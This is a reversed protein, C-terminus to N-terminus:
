IRTNARMLLEHPLWARVVKWHSDQLELRIRIAGMGPAAPRLTVVFGTPGDFFAWEIQPMDDAAPPASQSGALADLGAQRAASVLGEPTVNEDIMNGAIGRVFSFGFPPLADGSKVAQAQAPALETVDDCVDEKLGERVGDWDVLRELTAADGHRIAQGLEFLVFYPYAAYILALAFGAPLLRRTALRAFAASADSFFRKQGM